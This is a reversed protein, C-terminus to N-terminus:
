LMFGTFTVLPVSHTHYGTGYSHKVLVRDQRKLTLVVMNTGTQFSAINNAGILRVKSVGNLVIDLGIEQTSYEVATFYFVYTGAAPATFVGTSKSYGNGVNSIVKNFILIGSNWTTSSSTIGAGFAVQQKGEPLLM